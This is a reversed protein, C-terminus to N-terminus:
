PKIGKTWNVVVTAPEASADNVATSILFRQGDKTVDFRFDPSRIGSAFLTQPRGHQFTSGTTVMM